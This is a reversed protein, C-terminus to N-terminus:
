CISVFHMNVSESWEGAGGEGWGVWGYGSWEWSRVTQMGPHWVDKSEM